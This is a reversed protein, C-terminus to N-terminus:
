VIEKEVRNEIGLRREIYCRNPMDYYLALAGPFEEALASTFMVLPVLAGVILVYDFDPHYKVLELRRIAEEVFGNDWISPRSSRGDFLYVIEGFEEALRVDKPHPELIFVRPVQSVPM